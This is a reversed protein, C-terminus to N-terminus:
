RIKKKKVTKNTLLLLAKPKELVPPKTVFSPAARCAHSHGDGPPPGLGQCAADTGAAGLKHETTPDGSHLMARDQHCIDLHSSRQVLRDRDIPHLGARAKIGGKM